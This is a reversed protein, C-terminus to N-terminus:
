NQQFFQWTHVTHHVMTTSRIIYDAIKPPPRAIYDALNTFAEQLIPAEVLQPFVTVTQSERKEKQFDAEKAAEIVGQLLSNAAQVMAGHHTPM